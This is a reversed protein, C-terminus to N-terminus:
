SNRMLQRHMEVLNFHPSLRSIQEDDIEFFCGARLQFQQGNADPMGDATVQYTGSITYEAAAFYGTDSVLTRMDSLTERYHYFREFMFARLEAKGNFQRSQNAELVVDDGMTELIGDIDRYNYAAFFRGLLAATEAKFAASM